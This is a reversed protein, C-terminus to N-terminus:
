QSFGDPVKLTRAKYLVCFLNNRIGSSQLSFSKIGPLFTYCYKIENTPRFCHNISSIFKATRHCPLNNFFQGVILSDILVILGKSIAM